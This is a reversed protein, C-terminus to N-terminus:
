IWPYGSRSVCFEGSTEESLDIQIELPQDGDRLGLAGKVVLMFSAEPVPSISYNIDYLCNCDCFANVESEDIRLTDSQYNTDIVIEEPCCNFGANIHTIRLVSDTYSYKICEQTSTYSDTKVGFQKCGENQDLVVQLDSWVAPSEKECSTIMFPFVLAAIWVIRKM